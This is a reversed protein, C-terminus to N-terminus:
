QQTVQAVVTLKSWPALKTSSSVQVVVKTTEFAQAPAIERVKSAKAKTQVPKTQVPKTLFAKPAVPKTVKLSSPAPLSLRSAYSENSENTHWFNCIRDGTTCPKNKYCGDGIAIAFRCQEGFQCPLKNLAEYSHAYNCRDGYPCNMGSGVSKCLRTCPNSPGAPKTVPAVPKAVSPTSQVFHEVRPVIKTAQSVQPKAVPTASVKPAPLSLRATYSVLTEDKHWFKCFRGTDPCPKNKYAGYGLSQTFRCRSSHSCYVRELQEYTHAYGCKNGNACPTNTSFSKCMKYLCMEVAQEVVPTVGLISNRIESATVKLDEKLEVKPKSSTVVTFGADDAVKQVPQSVPKAEIVIQEKTIIPVVEEESEEEDEDELSIQPVVVQKPAIVPAEVVVRSKKEAAAAIAKRQRKSIGTNTKDGQLKGQANTKTAKDTARKKGAARSANQVSVLNAAGKAAREAREAEERLLFAEQAAKVEQERVAKAEAAEMDAKVLALFVKYEEAMEEETPKTVVPKTVVPKTVVPEPVAPVCQSFANGFNLFEECVQDMNKQLDAVLQSQTNKAATLFEEYSKVISMFEQCIVEVEQETHKSVKPTVPAVPAVPKAVVPAVQEAVPASVQSFKSVPVLNLSPFSFSMKVIQSKLPQGFKVPNTPKINFTLRIPQQQERDLSSIETYIEKATTTVEVETYNSFEEEEQQQHYEETIVENIENIDSGDGRTVLPKREEVFRDTETQKTKYLKTKFSM